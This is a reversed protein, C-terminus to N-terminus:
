KWSYPNRFKLLRLNRTFADKSKELFAPLEVDNEFCYIVVMVDKLDFPAMAEQRFLVLIGFIGESDVLVIMNEM